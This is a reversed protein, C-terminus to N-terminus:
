LGGSDPTHRWVATESPISVDTNVRQAIDGRPSERLCVDINRLFMVRRNFVSDKHLMEYRAPKKRQLTESGRGIGMKSSWDRVAEM